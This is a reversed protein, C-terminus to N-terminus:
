AHFARCKMLLRLTTRTLPLPPLYLRPGSIKLKKERLVFFPSPRSVIKKSFKRKTEGGDGPLAPVYLQPSLSPRLPWDKKVRERRFAICNWNLAATFEGLCCIILSSRLNNILTLLLREYGKRREGKQSQSNRAQLGRFSTQSVSKSYELALM